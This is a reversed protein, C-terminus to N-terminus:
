RAPHVQSWREMVTLRGPEREAVARLWPVGLAALACRLDRADADEDFGHAPPRMDLEGGYLDLLSPGGFEHVPLTLLDEVLPDDFIEAHRFHRNYGLGPIGEFPECALIRRVTAGPIDTLRRRRRLPRTLGLHYGDRVICLWDHLARLVLPSGLWIDRIQLAQEPTLHPTFGPNCSFVPKVWYLRSAWPASHFMQETIITTPQMEWWLDFSVLKGLDAARGMFLIDHLFCPQMPILRTAVIRRGFMPLRSPPTEPWERIAQVFDSAPGVKDTRLKFVADDPSFMGLGVHLQKMQHLTHGSLIIRPAASEAIEMELERALEAGRGELRPQGIWTSLVVRAVLGDAHLGAIRELLVEVAAPDRIAGCILVNVREPPKEQNATPLPARSPASVM